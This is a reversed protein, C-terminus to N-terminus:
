EILIESVTPVNQETIKHSEPGDAEDNSSSESSSGDEVKAENNDEAQKEPIDNLATFEPILKIYNEKRQLLMNKSDELRKLTVDNHKAPLYFIPIKASLLIYSSMTDFSNNAIEELEKIWIQRRLQRLDRQKERRLQLLERKQKIIEEHEKSAREELKREIEQRKSTQEKLHENEQKFKTLTGLLHGFMRKSRIIIQYLIYRSCTEKDPIEVKEEIPSFNMEVPQVIESMVSIPTQLPEEIKAVTDTSESAKEIDHEIEPLRDRAIRKRNLRQNFGRRIESFNRGTVKKINEDVDRIGNLIDDARKQLDSLPLEPVDIEM